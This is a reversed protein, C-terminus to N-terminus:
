LQVPAKMPNELSASYMARPEENQIYRLCAQKLVAAEELQRENQELKRYSLQIRRNLIKHDM